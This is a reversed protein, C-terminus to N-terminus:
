RKTITKYESANITWWAVVEVRTHFCRSRREENNKTQTFEKVIKLTSWNGIRDLRVRKQRCHMCYCCCSHIYNWNEFANESICRSWVATVGAVAMEEEANPHKVWLRPSKSQWIEWDRTKCDYNLQLTWTSVIRTRGKQKWSDQDSAATGSDVAAPPLEAKIELGSRGWDPLISLEM